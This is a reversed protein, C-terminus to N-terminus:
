LNEIVDSESDTGLITGRLLAEQLCEMDMPEVEFLIGKAGDNTGQAKCLVESSQLPSARWLSERATIEGSDQCYM